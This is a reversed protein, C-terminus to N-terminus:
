PRDHREFTQLHNDQAFDLLFKWALPEIDRLCKDVVVCNVGDIHSPFVYNSYGIHSQKSLRPTFTTLVCALRQAWDSPRFRKEELTLGHIIFYQM